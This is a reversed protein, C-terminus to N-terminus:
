SLAEVMRRLGDELYARPHTFVIRFWGPDECGFDTGLAIFVRKALLKQMIKEDGDVVTGAGSNVSEGGRTKEGKVAPLSKPQV